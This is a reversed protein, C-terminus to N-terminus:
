HPLNGCAVIEMLHRPVGHINIYLASGTLKYPFTTVSTGTGRASVQFPALAYRVDGNSGCHGVHIHTLHIGPTLGHANLTVTTHRTKSNYVITATGWAHSVGVSRLSVRMTSSRVAAGASNGASLISLGVIAAVLIRKRM